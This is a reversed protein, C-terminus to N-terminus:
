NAEVEDPLLYTELAKMLTEPGFPKTVYGTCGAMRGRVKDFFGDKGSIMVVPLDKAVPNSRIQKCVEYGDMRPMAIDLLILDPIQEAVRALAEVGDVACVVNHGSKELKGSILKRVTPSDDVVLITKGKPVSIVEVENHRTEDLRIAIANLQASLIVDNPNLRSAEQLYKLGSSSDGLNFHGVALATLELEDFERLNWEAEMRTVAQQVVEHDAHPNSLLSNLDSLTLVAHCSKCEIERNDNQAECFPCVSGVHVTAADFTEFSETEDVPSEVVQFASEVHSPSESAHVDEVSLTFTTEVAQELVPNDLVTVAQEASSDLEEVSHSIFEEHTPEVPSEEYVPDSATPLMPAMCAVCENAQVANPATCFYCEVTEDVTSGPDSNHDSNLEVSASPDLAVGEDVMKHIEIDDDTESVEAVPYHQMETSLSEVTVSEVDVTEPLTGFLQEIRDPAAEEIPDTEDEPEGLAVEQELWSDISGVRTQWPDNEMPLFESVNSPFFAIPDSIGGETDTQTTFPSKDDPSEVETELAEETAASDVVEVEASPEEFAESAEQPEQTDHIADHDFPHAVTENNDFFTSVPSEVVSKESLAEQDLDPADNTSHEATEPRAKKQTEGFTLVLFSLGSRAAANEPDIELANELAAVKDVLSDSLHSKLIWAEVSGASNKLFEDLVKIAKDRNGAAAAQKATDLAAQSRSEKLASIVDIKNRADQNEPNIELVMNLCELRQDEDSAISAKQLWAYESREDHGLAQELCQHALELDGEKEALSARQVFTKALLSRTAARWEAARENEPNINLVNNLFGLLEEPYDSISALWMWADECRPNVESAQMLFVRARDRDGIQASAIGNKLLGEFDPTATNEIPESVAFEPAPIATINSEFELRM